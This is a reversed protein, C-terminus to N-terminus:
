PKRRQTGDPAIFMTGSPLANYSGEDTIKPMKTTQSGNQEAWGVPRGAAVNLIDKLETLAQRYDEPSQASDLRGLAQTAKAGEIETIQGGGKLSEFAQLFAQGDLQKVRAGFRRQSTGPIKQLPSWIGTSSNFAPDSLLGDITAVMAAPSSPNSIDAPDDGVAGQELTFGGKGDSAFKMGKDTPTRKFEGTKDNIQGAQAGYAGAEEPTAVRWSPASEMGPIPQAGGQPNNKDYFQGDNFGYEPAAPKFAEFAELVGELSAAVAPFQEFPYEAPNLGNKKLFSDYGAKDGKQYFYAGGKLGDAIKAQQAAAESAQLGAAYKQANRKATQKRIELEEANIQMGQRTADMGLRTQQVGLAAEPDFGALANVAGQEGAVIGAGHEKYMANLADSRQFQKQQAAAQNANSVTALLNPQRGQLIINPNLAM